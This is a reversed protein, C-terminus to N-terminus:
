VYQVPVAPINTYIIDIGCLRSSIFKTTIRCQGLVVNAWLVNAWSVNLWISMQDSPRKVMLRRGMLRKAWFVNSWISTQGYSMQGYSTRGLFVNAGFFHQFPMLFLCTIRACVHVHACAHQCRSRPRKGASRVAWSHPCCLSLHRKPSM